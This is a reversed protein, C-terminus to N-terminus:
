AKFHLQIRSTFPQPGLILVHGDFWLVVIVCQVHSTVTAVGTVSEVVVAYNVPLWVPHLEARQVEVVIQPRTSGAGCKPLGAPPMFHTRRRHQVASKAAPVQRGTHHNLNAGTAHHQLATFILRVNVSNNTSTGTTFKYAQIYWCGCLLSTAIAVFLRQISANQM